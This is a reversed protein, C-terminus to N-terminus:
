SLPGQGGPTCPQFTKRTTHAHVEAEDDRFPALPNLYLRYKSHRGMQLATIPM